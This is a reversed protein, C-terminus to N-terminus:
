SMEIDPALYTVLVGVLTELPISTGHEKNHEYLRTYLDMLNVGSLIDPVKAYPHNEKRDALWQFLGPELTNVLDRGSESVEYIRPSASRINALGRRMACDRWKCLFIDVKQSALKERIQSVEFYDLRESIQQIVQSTQLMKQTLQWGQWTSFVLSAGAVVIACSVFIRERIRLSM